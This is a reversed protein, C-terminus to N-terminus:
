LRNHSEIFFVVVFQYFKVRGTKNKMAAREVPHDQFAKNIVHEDQQFFILYEAKKFM